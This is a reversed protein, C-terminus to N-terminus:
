CRRKGGWQVFVYRPASVTWLSDPSGWATASDGAGGLLSQLVLSPRVEVPLSPCPTWKGDTYRVFRGPLFCCTGTIPDFSFSHAGELLWVEEDNLLGNRAAANLLQEASTPADQWLPLQVSLHTQFSRVRLAALNATDCGAPSLLPMAAFLYGWPHIPSYGPSGEVAEAQITAASRLSGRQESHVWAYVLRALLSIDLVLLRDRLTQESRMATCDFSHPKPLQLEEATLDDTPQAADPLMTGASGCRVLRAAGSKDYMHHETLERFLGAAHSTGDSRAAYLREQQLTFVTEATPVSPRSCIEHHQREAQYAAQGGYATQWDLEQSRHEPLRTEWQAMHRCSALADPDICAWRRAMHFARLVASHSWDNSWAQGFREDATRVTICLLRRHESHRHRFSGNEWIWRGIQQESAYLTAFVGFSDALELLSDAIASPPVLTPM